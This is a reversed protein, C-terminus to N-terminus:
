EEKKYQQRIILLITDLQGNQLFLKDLGRKLNEQLLLHIPLDKRKLLQQTLSKMMEQHKIDKMKQFEFLASHLEINITL